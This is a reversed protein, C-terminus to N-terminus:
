SEQNKRNNEASKEWKNIQEIEPIASTIPEEPIVQEVLFTVPIYAGEVLQRSDGCQAPDSILEPLGHEQIAIEKHKNRCHGCDEIYRGVRKVSFINKGECDQQQQWIKHRDAPGGINRETM